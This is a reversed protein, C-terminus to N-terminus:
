SFLNKFMNFQNSALGKNGLKVQKKAISSVQKFQKLLVNIEQVSTGSGCAIRKKRKGNIIDPNSKEHKTMSLIIAEQRKLNNFDFNSEKIKSMVNSIGPILNIINKFGGLKNINKLQQYYDNLDFQGKKLKEVSKVAEKENIVEAAKEVLSVIDGKGLIRSAIREPYFAELRDAKEGTGLFKIPIGTAYRISLAAGGRADGDIKSLIVGSIDLKNHFQQAVNVAEQGILADVVLIIERPTIVKKINYLEDLMADNIHLRGATDFIIIECGNFKSDNMARNVITMVDENAIIPLCIINQYDRVMLELQERAAPRSVDLSVVMVKKGQRALKLALKATTTTKGSGQLGVMMIPVPPEANINLEQDDKSGGLINVIEDNIIKIVMQGPTISRIVEQGKAKDIVSNILDKVVALSVDAELLAIRVERMSSIIHEESLVANGKLKDFITTLRETLNQFM